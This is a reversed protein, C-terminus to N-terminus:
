ELDGKVDEVKSTKKPKREEKEFSDELMGLAKELLKSDIIEKIEELNLSVGKMPSAVGDFEGWTRIDLKTESNGWKGLTIRKENGEKLTAVDKVLTYKVSKGKQFAM